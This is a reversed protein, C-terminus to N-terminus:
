ELWCIIPSYNIIFFPAYLNSSFHLKRAIWDGFLSTIWEFSIRSWSMKRYVILWCGVESRMQCSLSVRGWFNAQRLPSSALWFKEPILSVHSLLFLFFIHIFSSAIFIYIRISISKNPTFTFSFLSLESELRAFPFLQSFSDLWISRLVLSEIFFEVGDLCFYIFHAFVDVNFSLLFPNKHLFFLLLSLLPKLFILFGLLIFEFLWQLFKHCLNIFPLIIHTWIKVRIRGSVVCVIHRLNYFKVFIFARKRSLMDRHTSM